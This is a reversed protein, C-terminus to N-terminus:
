RKDSEGGFQKYFALVRPVYAQTEAYPPIRNGYRQVAGEGANYGALALRLDGGFMSLLDALYRAGARINSVPQKLEKAKVGYRLATAPMLQMLGIAGRPSIAAPNHNSEAAIVAHVLAPSLNNLKAAALVAAQFPQKNLGTPKADANDAGNLRYQDANRLKINVRNDKLKYDNPERLYLKYRADDPVNSLRVTGDDEVFTYVDAHASPAALLAAGIFLASLAARPSFSISSHM